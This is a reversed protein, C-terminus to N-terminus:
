AGAFANAMPRRRQGHGLVAGAKPTIVITRCLAFTRLAMGIFRTQCIIEALQGSFVRSGFITYHRTQEVTGVPVRMVFPGSGATRDAYRGTADGFAVSLAQCMNPRMRGSFRLYRKGLQPFWM